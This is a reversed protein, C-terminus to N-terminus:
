ITIEVKEIIVGWVCADQEEEEEEEDDDDQSPPPSTLCVEFEHSINRGANGALKVHCKVM